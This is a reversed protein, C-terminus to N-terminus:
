KKNLRFNSFSFMKDLNGKAKKGGKFKQQIKGGANANSPGSGGQFRDYNVNSYDFNVPKTSSQRFDSAKQPKGKKFQKNNKKMQDVMDAVNKLEAEIAESNVEIQSEASSVAQLSGGEDDRKKKWRKNPSPAVSTEHHPRKRRAENLSMEVVDDNDIKVIELSPLQKKKEELLQKRREEEQAIDRKRQAEMFPIMLKYREFPSIFKMDISNHGNQIKNFIGLKVKFIKVRELSNKAKVDGLLTPLDDRIEQQHSLDHPSYLPNHLLDRKNNLNVTPRM